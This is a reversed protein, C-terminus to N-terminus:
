LSLKKEFIVFLENGARPAISNHCAQMHMKEFQDGFLEQYETKSGGFPPGDTKSMDFLLGVLKGSPTLLEAMKKVYAKRMGPPLACFFTQELILDYQGKHEFFDQHLCQPKPFNPLRKQLDQLPEIAFDLVNVNDFGKNFAYEAEYANGAGPILITINKDELQDIYSCIPPSAYGINWGTNQNQYRDSWYTAQNEKAKM